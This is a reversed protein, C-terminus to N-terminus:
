SPIAEKNLDELNVTVNLGMNFLSTIMAPIDNRLSTALAKRDEEKQHKIVEVPWESVLNQLEVTIKSRKKKEPLTQNLVHIIAAASEPKSELLFGKACSFASALSHKDTVDSRMKEIKWLYEVDGRKSAFEMWTGLTTLRLKTGSKLFKKSYKMLLEWNDTEYCTSFLLDATGPQLPLHNEKLLKMIDEMLAVDKQKKAYMLLRHASGILPTLGYANHEWLTKKGYDIAGVRTCAEVVKLCLHDNFNSSIQLNSLRFIRLSALMQFLLKIDEPNSCKYVLSWTWVNPPMTRGETISKYMKDYIEKVEETAAVDETTSETTYYARHNLSNYGLNQGNSTVGNSVGLVNSVKASFNRQNQSLFSSHPHQIEEVNSVILRESQLFIPTSLVRSIKNANSAIRLM